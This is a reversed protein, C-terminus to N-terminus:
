SMHFIFLACFAVGNKVAHLTISSWLGGTKERLFILVLSLVFTDIAAIYLPGSAGGEPLHAAAFLLSTVFAAWLLPLTKKLSTYLFGRVLIEETLPPIVVLSVFTLALPLIGHVQSFGIQQQQQVNLTPVLKSVITVVIFYLVYYPIVALLGYAVDKLRPALLGIKSWSQNYIKLFLHVFILAAAACLVINIFELYISSPGNALKSLYAANYHGTAVLYISLVIGGIIRQSFFVAVVFLTALIPNWPVTKVSPEELRPLVKVETNRRQLFM